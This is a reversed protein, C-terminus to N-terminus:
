FIYIGGCVGRYYRCVRFITNTNQPNIVIDQVGRLDSLQWPLTQTWTIGGDTTKLIGIGYTGRTTRIAFGTGTNQYNYVEGTGIYITNSDNPDIAIAGIGIVPFGIPIPQWANAGTGGTYSKWLGGAASGAYITQANQPNFALCLTRGGFNKPGIATWQGPFSQARQM